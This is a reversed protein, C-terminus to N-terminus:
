KVSLLFKLLKDRKITKKELTNTNMIKDYLINEVEGTKVVIWEDGKIIIKEPLSGEYVGTPIETPEFPPKYNNQNRKKM